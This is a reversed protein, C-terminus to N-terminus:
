NETQNTPDANKQVTYNKRIKEKNGKGIMKNISKPPGLLCKM